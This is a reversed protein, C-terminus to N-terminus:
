YQTISYGEQGVSTGTYVMGSTGIVQVASNSFRAVTIYGLNPYVGTVQVHYGFQHHAAGAVRPLFLSTDNVKVIIGRRDREV